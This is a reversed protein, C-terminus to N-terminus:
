KGSTIRNLTGGLAALPGTPMMSGGVSTGAGMASAAGSGIAGGPSGGIGIAAEVTPKAYSNLAGGATTMGTVFSSRTTDDLPVDTTVVTTVNSLTKDGVLEGIAKAGNDFTSTPLSTNAVVVGAGDCQESCNTQQAYVISPATSTITAFVTAVRMIWKMTRAERADFCHRAMSTM